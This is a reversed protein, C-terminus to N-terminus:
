VYEFARRRKKQRTKITSKIVSTNKGSGNKKDAGTEEHIKVPREFCNFKVTRLEPMRPIKELFFLRALGNYDLEKYDLIYSVIHEKYSRIYSIFARVSVSLTEPDILQKFRNYHSQESVLVTNQVPIQKVSLFNVYALENPMIFLISEGVTGNRATRGSRHIINAPDKPIDFHIVLDLEKFDIGRAALDTCLLLSDSQYFQSYIQNRAVQDMKGHIKLIRSSVSHDATPYDVSIPASRGSIVPLSAGAIFYESEDRAIFCESVDSVTANNSCATAPERNADAASSLMHQERHRVILAHFLDVQVCTAFFVLCRRGETLNLLVDLKDEPKVVLYKLVLREPMEASIKVSVPSRLFLKSLRGVADNITASFLGTVRTRPLMTVISRLKAEFSMDLLKDGEDLVLFQLHQFPKNKEALLEHLRGPTAACVPVALRDYDAEIPQGGIFCECDFGLLSAVDRVQYCLERTPVIVLLQISKADRPVMSLMPVLYALTKGSGTQSQVIVDKRNLIHPITEHQVPTMSTFGSDTLLQKMQSDLKLEGFERAM